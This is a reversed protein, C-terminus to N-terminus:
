ARILFFVCVSTSSTNFFFKDNNYFSYVTCYKNLYIVNIVYTNNQSFDLSIWIDKFPSVNISLRRLATTTVASM